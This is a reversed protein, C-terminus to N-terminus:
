DVLGSIWKGVKNDGGALSGDARLGVGLENYDKGNVLMLEKETAKAALVMRRFREDVRYREALYTKYVEEKRVDWAEQNWVAKFSKIKANGSLTRTQGVQDDVSKKLAEENGVLMERERQFKQHLAGEVRFIQPGLEPKDTAVQLKAAAIAAEVSPYVAQPSGGSSFADTIGDPILTGLNM